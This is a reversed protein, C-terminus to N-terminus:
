AEDLPAKRQRLHKKMSMAFKNHKKAVVRDRERQGDGPGWTADSEFDCDGYHVFSTKRIYKYSAYCIVFVILGLYTGFIKRWDFPPKLAAYTEGIFMISAMFLTVIPLLPYFPQRYPLDDISRGQYIFARRFRVNIWAVSAWTILASIGTVNLFWTFVVAKGWITTLFTLCSIGLTFLLAPIPVGRSNVYGMVRPLKGERSLSMMMRSSAYFCSNTASLIATLLVANVVHKAAGFGAREFVVTIPSQAIDSDSDSNLLTPDAHNICLGIVFITMVFFLTIRFFTAKIAKPITKSPNIAEGSALAVLECGGYSYFAYVFTLLFPGLGGLFAQGNRFNDLGPSPVTVFHDLAGWDYLLGVIVFLCILMVKILAAWYEMEGYARVNILQLAFIPVIIVLPWVWSQIEPAWFQLVVAAATLESPISFSWQLYYNIGLAFGLAPDVFRDGFTAFGGSTPILSSMEGLMIVVGYVFIGVLIYSLLAAGPGAIAVAVGASLFIGTGITGGVALMLMHRSELQRHLEAQPGSSFWSKPNWPKGRHKISSPPSVYAAASDAASLKLTTAM